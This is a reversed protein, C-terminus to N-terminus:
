LFKLTLEFDINYSQGDAVNALTVVGNTNVTLEYFINTVIRTADPRANTPLTLLEVGAADAAATAGGILILRGNVVNYTINRASFATNSTNIFTSTPHEIEELLNTTENYRVNPVNDSAIANPALAMLYGSSKPLTNIAPTTPRNPDLIFKTSGSEGEHNFGFGGNTITIGYTNTLLRAFTEGKITFHNDAIFYAEGNEEIGLLVRTLESEFTGKIEVGAQITPYSGFTRNDSFTEVTYNGDTTKFSYSKVNGDVNVENGDISIISDELTDYVTKISGNTKIYSTPHDQNKEWQLGSINISVPTDLDYNLFSPNNYYELYILGATTNANQTTKMGLLYYDSFERVIWNNLASGSSTIYGGNEGIDVKINGSVSGNGTTFKVFWGIKKKIRFSFFSTEGAVANFIISTNFYSNNFTSSTTKASNSFESFGIDTSYNSNIRGLTTLNNISESHTFNNTRGFESIKPIYNETGTGKVNGLVPKSIISIKKARIDLEGQLGNVQSIAVQSANVESYNEPQSKDGGKYMYHKVQGGGEDIVVVDGQQYTYNANNPVFAELSTEVAIVVDTIALDPIQETKLKGGGDLTAVGNPIDREQQKIFQISDEYAITGLESEEVFRSAGDEGDNILQSTKEIVNEVDEENTTEKFEYFQNSSTQSGNLGYAANPGNFYFNRSVGNFLANFVFGQRAPENPLLINVENSIHEEASIPNGNQDNPPNGIEGLSVTNGQNILKITKEIPLLISLPAPAEGVGFTKDELNGEQKIQWSEKIVYSGVAYYAELTFVVNPKLVIKDEGELNNLWHIVRSLIYQNANTASLDVLRFENKITTAVLDIEGQLISHLQEIKDRLLNWEAASYKFQSPIGQTAALQEASDQKDEINVFPGPM